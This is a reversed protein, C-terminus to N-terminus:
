VGGVDKLFDDLIPQFRAPDEWFPAHLLGDLEICEGRWLNKYKITRLFEVKVYPEDKGNVVAVVPKEATEVTAQQDLQRGQDMAEFMIRRFAGDTRYVNDKMWDEYPEGTTGHAFQDKEEDSLEERFAAFMHSANYFGLGVQGKPIPPTGVIMLGKYDIGEAECLPIMEIGIHGGLSWGLVIVSTLQYHKLIEIAVKAFGPQTYTSEPYLANTSQGHGPLDIAIVTRRQSISSAFIHKWVNSSTSNGHILLLPPGGKGAKTVSIKGTRTDLLDQRSSTATM